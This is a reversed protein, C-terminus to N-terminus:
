GVQPRIQGGAPQGRQKVGASGRDVPDDMLHHRHQSACQSGGGVGAVVRPDDVGGQNRRVVLRDGGDAGVVAAADVGLDIDTRVPATHHYDAVAPWTVAVDDHSTWGPQMQEITTDDETVASVRPMAEIVVRSAVVGAAVDVVVVVPRVAADSGADLV